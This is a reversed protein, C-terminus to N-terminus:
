LASMHCVHRVETKNMDQVNGNFSHSELCVVLTRGSGTQLTVDGNHLMLPVHGYPLKTEGVYIVQAGTVDGIM